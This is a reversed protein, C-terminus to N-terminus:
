RDRIEDSKGRWHEREQGQIKEKKKMRNSKREMSDRVRKTLRWNKM